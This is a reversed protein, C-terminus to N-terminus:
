GKKANGLKSISGRGLGGTGSPEGKCGAGSAITTAFQQKNAGSPQSQAAVKRSFNSTGAYAM